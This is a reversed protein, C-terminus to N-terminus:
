QDLGATYGTSYATQLNFGGTYADVDIVEGAFFLGSVLKSEMTKPNIEKVSVGGATVIAEKISGFGLIEIKFHKLLEVIKESTAKSVTVCFFHQGYYGANSPLETLLENSSTRTPFRPLSHLLFAGDNQDYVLSGKAHARDSTASDSGGGKTGKDDNWFFYNFDEAKSNNTVYATIMTPPFTSEEYLYYEISSLTNDFYVYYIQNDSSVSRPM